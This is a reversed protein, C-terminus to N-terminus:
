RKPPITLAVLRDVNAEAELSNIAKVLQDFQGEPIALGPALLKMLSNEEKLRFRLVERGNLEGVFTRSDKLVVTMRPFYPPREKTGILEIREVLRSVVPDEQQQSPSQSRNELSGIAPGYQPYSRNKLAMAVGFATSMVGRTAPNPFAPSPYTTELHYMELRIQEVEEPRLNHEQAMSIALWIPTQIYGTMPWQKSTMYVLEYRQGLGETVSSFDWDRKGTFAYYFGAEGDLASEATRAGTSAMLAAWVGNRTATPDQLSTEGTGARAGEVTGSAFTAALALASVMQDGNLGLLKGAATAAGFIGFVPSSRFGHAQVASIYDPNSALRTIVEIGATVAAIFERGSCGRGEAISLAAPVVQCGPHTLMRYSDHQNRHAMYACNVFAAGVRTVRAGDGLITAGGKALGEQAIVLAKERQCQPSEHAALGTGFAHLIRAKVRDQVEDPLSEYTVSTAFRALRRALTDAM